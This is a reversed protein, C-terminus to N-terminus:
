LALKEMTTIAGRRSSTISIACKAALMEYWKSILLFALLLGAMLLEKWTSFYEENEVSLSLALYYDCLEMLVKISVVKQYAMYLLM